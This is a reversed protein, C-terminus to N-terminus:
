ALMQLFKQPNKDFHPRIVKTSLGRHCSEIQKSTFMAQLIWTSFHVGVLKRWWIIVLEIKVLLEPESTCKNARGPWQCLWASQKGGSSQHRLGVLHLGLGGGLQGFDGAWVARQNSWTGLWSGDWGVNVLGGTQFSEFDQTLHLTDVHEVHLLRDLFTLTGHLVWVNNRSVNSEAVNTASTLVMLVVLGVPHLNLLVLRGSAPVTTSHVSGLVKTLWTVTM